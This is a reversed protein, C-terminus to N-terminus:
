MKPAMKRFRKVIDPLLAILQDIEEKTTYKSLTIRISGHAVEPSLGMATLVHSPKLDQSTCASGTSVAIGQMDLALVISEGEAGPFSFNVNNPLRSDGKPGNLQSEPIKKLIELILRDRLATLKKHIKAKNDSVLELAKAIAVIYPVNETGARLGYEQSGGEQLPKFPTGKRIYLAGIGKPAYVKHGAITILDVHLRDVNCDLYQVAQAADTHVIIKNARRRNIKKIIKGIERIPEIAGTESNAYMISCLVTDDTIAKELDPLKIIGESNVSLYTVKYGQKELSKAPKLIAKHEIQSTILHGKKGTKERYSYIVGKLALNNAETACSTFVVEETKCGLFRAVQDRAGLITKAGEQGWSHVSSPNGFQDHFYPLMAELVEPDVPTTASNDLYIRMFQLYKYKAKNLVSRVHSM